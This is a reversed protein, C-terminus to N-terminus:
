RRSRRPFPSALMEPRISTPSASAGITFIDYDYEMEARTSVAFARVHRRPHRAAQHTLGRVRARAATSFVPLAAAGHRAAVSLSM